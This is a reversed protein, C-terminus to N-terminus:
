KVLCIKLIEDINEIDIIYVANYQLNSSSLTYHSDGRNLVASLMNQGLINYINIRKDETLTSNFKLHLENNSYYVILNKNDIEEEIDVSLPITNIEFRNANDNLDGTFTYPGNNLLHTTGLKLDNLVISFNPSFNVFEKMDITYLGNTGITTYVPITANMQALPMSNIVLNYNDDSVTAFEVGVPNGNPLYIADATVEYNNAAGSKFRVVAETQYGQGSILLRFLPDSTSSKFFTGQIAPDTIRDDNQFTLTASATSNVFFAQM